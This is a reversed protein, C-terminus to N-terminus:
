NSPIFPHVSILKESSNKLVQELRDVLLLQNPLNTLQDHYTLRHVDLNSKYLQEEVSLRETIDRSSEIIGSIENQENFLPSAILEFVRTKNNKSHHEHVVSVSQGTRVVKELPCQEENLHCPIESNHSVQYCYFCSSDNNDPTHLKAANNLLQVKYDRGIVMIPDAVGNIITQLFNKERETRQESLILKQEALKRETIDEGSSIIGFTRGSADKLINNHWSIWRESDDSCRVKGDVVMKYDHLNGSMIEKFIHIVDTQIDDPLFHDFWNKGVIDYEPYGLIECGKDNIMTVDGQENLTLIMVGAIQLYRQAQKKSHAHLQEIHWQEFAKSLFNAVTQLLLIDQKFLSDVQGPNDLGIFGQFRDSWFLPINVCSQINGDEFVNKLAISNEPIDEKDLLLVKGQELQNFIWSFDNRHCEQLAAIQAKVGSACWEYTNKLCSKDPSVQFLYCRDSHTFLSLIKLTKNIIKDVQESKINVLDSSLESIIKELEVKHQLEKKSSFLESLLLKRDTIDRSSCIIYESDNNSYLRASVEVHIFKGDKHRHQTEMIFKDHTRFVELQKLWDDHNCVFSSVDYIKLQLFEKKSYGLLKYSSANTDLFGGSQPDIIYFCDNSHDVQHRFNLLEGTLKLEKLKEQKQEELQKNKWLNIGKSITNYSAGGMTERIEDYSPISGKDDYLRDVITLVRQVAPSIKKM